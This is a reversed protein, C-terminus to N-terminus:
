LIVIFQEPQQVTSVSNFGAKRFGRTPNKDGACGPVAAPQNGNRDMITVIPLIMNIHKLTTESAEM